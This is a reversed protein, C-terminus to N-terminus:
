SDRPSPSTYLLCSMLQEAMTDVSAQIMRTMQKKVRFTKNPDYVNDAAKRANTFGKDLIEDSFPVTVLKKWAEATM